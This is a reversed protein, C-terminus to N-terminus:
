KRGEVASKLNRLIKKAEKEFGEQCMSEELSGRSNIIFSYKPMPNLRWDISEAIERRTFFCKISNDKLPKLKDMIVVGTPNGITTLVKCAKKCEEITQFFMWIGYKTIGMM